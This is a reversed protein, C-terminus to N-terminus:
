DLTNIQGWVGNIKSQYKVVIRETCYTYPDDYTSSYGYTTSAYSAGSFYCGVSYWGGSSYGYAHSIGRGIALGGVVLVFAAAILLMSARRSHFRATWSM